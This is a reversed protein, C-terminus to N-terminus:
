RIDHEEGKLKCIIKALERTYWEYSLHAVRQRSQAAPALLLHLINQLAVANGREFLYDVGIDKASQGVDSSIIPIGKANAEILSMPGGEWLSPILVYDVLDYQASYGEPYKLGADGLGVSEIGRDNYQKIVPEWDNGVFRWKFGRMVWPHNRGMEEMFHFGKGEYKGRQFVGITPKKLDFGDPIEGPILVDMKEPPYFQEFMERYRSCGHVIFDLTLWSPQVHNISNEHLHTFYGIDLVPTRGHYCNQIDVYYNAAVDVRPTHSLSWRLRSKITGDGPMRANLDQSNGAKVIREAIKQLIWGSKVTVVNIHM